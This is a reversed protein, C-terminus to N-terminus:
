TVSLASRGNVGNTSLVVPHDGARMITYRLVAVEALLPKCIKGVRTGLRHRMPPRSACKRDNSGIIPRYVNYIIYLSGLAPSTPANALLRAFEHPIAADGM